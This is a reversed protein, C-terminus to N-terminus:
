ARNASPWISFSLIGAWLLASVFPLLVLLCGGLLVALLIWGLNQEFRSRPPTDM